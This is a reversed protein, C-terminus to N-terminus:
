AGGGSWVGAVREHATVVMHVERESVADHFSQQSRERAATM